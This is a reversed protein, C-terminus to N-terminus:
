LLRGSTSCYRLTQQRVSAFEVYGQKKKYVCAISRAKRVARSSAGEMTKMSSNWASNAELSASPVVPHSILGRSDLSPLLFYILQHKNACAACYEGMYGRELMWVCMYVCSTGEVCVVIFVTSSEGHAVSVFRVSLEDPMCYVLWINDALFELRLTQPLSQSDQQSQLVSLKKVLRTSTSRSYDESPIYTSPYGMASKLIYDIFSWEGEAESNRRGGM